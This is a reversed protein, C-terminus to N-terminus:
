ASFHWALTWLKSMDQIYKPCIISMIKPMQVCMKKAISFTWFTTFNQDKKPCIRYSQVYKPCMKSMKSPKSM